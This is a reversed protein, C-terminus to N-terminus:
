SVRLQVAHPQVSRACLLLPRVGRLVQSGDQKSANLSPREYAEAARGARSEGESARPIPIASQTRSSGLVPADEETIEDEGVHAGLNGLRRLVGAM